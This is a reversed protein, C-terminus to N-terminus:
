WCKCTNMQLSVKWHSGGFYACFEPVEGDQVSGSISRCFPELYSFLLLILSSHFMGAVGHSLAISALVEHEYSHDTKSYAWLFFMATTVSSLKAVEECPLAKMECEKWQHCKDYSMTQNLACWSGLKWVSYEMLNSALSVILLLFKQFVIKPLPLLKAASFHLYVRSCAPQPGNSPHSRKWIMWGQSSAKWFQTWASTFKYPINTLIREGLWIGYLLLGSPSKLGHSHPGQWVCDIERSCVSSHNKYIYMYINICASIWLEADKGDTRENDKQTEFCCLLLDAYRLLQWGDFLALFSSRERGKSSIVEWHLWSIYFQPPSAVAIPFHFGM